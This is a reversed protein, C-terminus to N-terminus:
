DYNKRNMLNKPKNLIGGLLYKILGIAAFKIIFNKNSRTKISYGYSRMDKKQKILKKNYIKSISENVGGGGRLLDVPHYHATLSKRSFGNKFQSSSGHILSPHWILLDGKKMFVEKKKYNRAENKSWEIFENHNTNMWKKNKSLHSKPYIHFVGGSGDIDELAVWAGFLHGMPNTDLYWTDIHDITGTSKDFFMNQWMCFEKYDTLESLSNFIEESQLIERGAKSLNKAWPLDTFNEFSCNLLGFSDLDQKIKRWNHESQSYYLKNSKKFKELEVLITNIKEIPIVSKFLIYGEEM